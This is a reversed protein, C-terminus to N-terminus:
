SGSIGIAREVILQIVGTGVKIRGTQNGHFCFESGFLAILQGFQIMQRSITMSFRCTAPTALTLSIQAFYKLSIHPVSLLVLFDFPLIAYPDM